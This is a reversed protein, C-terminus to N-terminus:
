ELMKPVEPLVQVDGKKSINILTLAPDSLESLIHPVLHEDVYHLAQYLKVALAPFYVFDAIVIIVDTSETDELIRDVAADVDATIGSVETERMFQLVEPAMHGTFLMTFAGAVIESHHSAYSAFIRVKENKSLQIQQRVQPLYTEFFAPKLLYAPEVARGKAATVDVLHFLFFKVSKSSPTM